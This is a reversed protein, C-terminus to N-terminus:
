EGQVGMRIMANDYEDGSLPFFGTSPIIEEARTLLFEMFTRVGSRQLSARKVYLYLQRGLPAYTGERITEASPLVCGQGGDVAVVKLYDRNEDLYAYGFYGLSYADGTIGQVLVNDDESAHFDTRSAGLDGVVTETFTDFTGSSTGPGYLEIETGPFEPRIDRWTRIPSGPRWIQRLEEVTLCDVFENAPNVIVSLGDLAVPVEFYEIGAAACDAAEAPQILRSATAVDTEGRCFRHIGGGSGSRGVGVMVGPHTEQFEEAIAEAIPYVTSSGDVAVYERGFWEEGESCGSLPLWFPLSLLVLPRIRGLARVPGM